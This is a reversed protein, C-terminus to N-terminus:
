RTSGSLRPDIRITRRCADAYLLAVTTLAKFDQSPMPCTANPASAVAM